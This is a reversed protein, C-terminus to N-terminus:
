RRTLPILVGHLVAIDIGNTSSPATVHVAAAASPAVTRHYFTTIYGLLQSADVSALRPQAGSISLAGAEEGSFPVVAVRYSGSALGDLVTYSGDAQISGYGVENGAIDYVAVSGATFPAGTGAATVHGAIVGGKALAADIGTLDNPATLVVPNAAALSPKDNYFEDVYSGDYDSFQVRYSGSPLGTKSHYGGLFTLGGFMAFTGDANYIRVTGSTIPAGTSADTLKGFIISGRTLAADIHDRINPATINVPNSSALNLKHNYYETVYACSAFREDANFRVRYSGNPLVPDTQYTGDAKTNATEVRDGNADLVEVFIHEIPLGSTADTVTGSVAGGKALEADIGGVTNPAVVPIPNAQGFDFQNHYAEPVYDSPRFLVRYNGSPLATATYVGSADTYVYNGYDSGLVNVSIDKLPTGGVATVRGTITGGPVMAIDVGSVTNPASVTVNQQSGVLNISDSLPTAVVQYSGSGLGDITYNGSADTYAYGSGNRGSASVSVSVLPLGTGADTVRGSIQGGRALTADVGTRVAPATVALADAAELSPKDNYYEGLYSGSGDFGIRYSGSLLGPSTTYNGAADTYAGAVSQGSSDYVNVRLSQLPGSGEGVVQGSFQAGLGLQANIGSTAGGDSVTVPTASLPSAQDDYWEAAYAGSGAKFQVIYTGALLGSVQYNGSANTYVSGGSNGYTTYATVQVNNLPIAGPGTVTGSITASGSNPACSAPLPAALAVRPHQAASAAMGVLLVFLVFM